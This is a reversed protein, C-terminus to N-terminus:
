KCEVRLRRKSARHEALSIEKLAPFVAPEIWRRRLESRRELVLKRGDLKFSQRFSGLDNEVMQEQGSAPPCGDQPLTVSWTMQTSFPDAVVPLERGDLVGPAPMDTLSPVPLQPVSGPDYAQPLVLHLKATLTASPVGSDHAALKPQELKVGPLLRGLSELVIRDIEEPRRTQQLDLYAWGASGLLELRAEGTIEGAPSLSVDVSLRRGESQQRIPTRVLEGRGGRIVLAEQDQTSPSLWSLAGLPQTPDIFLYGGSVPDAETLGLDDASVAVIAHNFQPSPFERDVRGTGDSLILVPWAEIGVERLLDILLFAKDKCDGWRRELVEQPTHPRYGGIGVEVAVYRVQKRAFALLTELKERRGALSATLERAKARVPETGRPVEATLREYWTGVKEWGATDGWAYRLIAGSSASTPAFEPPSVRPLSRGTVEVGGATEKVEVGPLAGDLRWRWGAGGGKVEIRLSETPSSPWGIVIAGAPFYPREKVEYDLSLISGVPAAPFSVSRYKASSHLIGEGAVEHTDLARRAVKEVKGDPRLVSASLSELERNEDLYIVHPSWTSFDGDNDLRVRLRERELVSGDPRIEIQVSRDLVTAAQASGGVLFLAFSFVVRLKM